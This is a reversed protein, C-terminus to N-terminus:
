FPLSLSMWIKHVFKEIVLSLSPIKQTLICLYIDAKELILKRNTNCLYFCLVLLVFIIISALQLLLLYVQSFNWLFKWIETCSFCHSFLVLCSIWFTLFINFQCLHCVLIRTKRKSLPLTLSLSRKWTLMLQLLVLNLEGVLFSRLLGELNPREVRELISIRVM